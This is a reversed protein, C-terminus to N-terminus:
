WYLRGRRHDPNDKEDHAPHERCRGAFTLVDLLYLRKPHPDRRGHASGGALAQCAQLVGSERRERM